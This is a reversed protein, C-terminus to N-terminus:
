RSKVRVRPSRSATWGTGTGNGKWVMIGNESAGGINPNGHDGISILDLHGDQNVDALRAQTNGGEISVGLFASTSITYATPQAVIGGFQLFLAAAIITTKKM